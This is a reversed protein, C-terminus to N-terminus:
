SMVMYRNGGKAASMIAKYLKTDKQPDSRAISCTCVGHFCIYVHGSKWGREEYKRIQCATGAYSLGRKSNIARKNYIAISVPTCKDKADSPSRLSIKPAMLFGGNHHLKSVAEYM